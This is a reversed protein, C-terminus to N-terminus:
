FKEFDRFDPDANSVGGSSRSATATNAKAVPRSASPKNPMLAKRVNVSNTAVNDVKFFAVAQQLQEAQGSMEEATAALEESSSANQQTAQDLQSMADNIQSIGQAQEESSATIEEVLDATKQINPVVDELSKGAEEAISVSKTALENIELATVRSNEALKRVEAAVVTFGKGHEGARAAEIAANLSLLNTKYAIDEILGIKSAIEKMASVTRKVAEGGSAADRASSN